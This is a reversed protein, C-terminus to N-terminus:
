CLNAAPDTNLMYGMGYTRYGWQFNEALIKPVTDTPGGGTVIATVIIEYELPMTGTNEAKYFLSHQHGRVEGDTMISSAVQNGGVNLSVSTVTNTSSLMSGMPANRGAEDTLALHFEITEGPCHM